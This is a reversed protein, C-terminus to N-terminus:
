SLYSCQDQHIFLHEAWREVLVVDRQPLQPIGIPNKPQLGQHPLCPLSHREKLLLRVPALLFALLLLRVQLLPEDVLEMPELYPRYAM